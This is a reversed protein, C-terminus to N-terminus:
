KRFRMLLTQTAKRIRHAAALKSVAEEELAYAARYQEKLLQRLLKKPTSIEATLTYGIVGYEEEVEFSWFRLGDLLLLSLEPFETNAYYTIETDDRHRKLDHVFTCSGIVVTGDKNPKIKSM